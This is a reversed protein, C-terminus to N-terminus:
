SQVEVAEPVKFGKDLLQRLSAAKDQHAKLVAAFFTEEIQLTNRLLAEPNM